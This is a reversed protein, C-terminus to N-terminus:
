SWAITPGMAQILAKLDADSGEANAGTWEVVYFMRALSGNGFGKAGDNVSDSHTPAVKEDNNYALTRDNTRDLRLAVAHTESSVSGASDANVSVTQLRMLGTTILHQVRTSNTTSTLNYGLLSRTAAPTAPFRIFALTLISTTSPNPGVGAAAAFRDAVGDGSCSVGVRTQGTIAQSYTPTGTATWTVGGISDALNGSSEQCLRLHQPSAMNLGKFTRFNNWQTTSSPFYWGSTADRDVLNCVTTEVDQTAPSSNDADADATTSHTEAVGGSTVNITITPMAGVSGSARTAQIHGSGLDSVTWGTGSGSVFSVQADLQVDVVVNVAAIAGTNTCVVSYSWAGGTIVPDISDNIAVTLTTTTVATRRPPGALWGQGWSAWNGLM